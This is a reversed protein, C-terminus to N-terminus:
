YFLFRFFYGQYSSWNSRFHSPIQHYSFNFAIKFINVDAFTLPKIDGPKNGGGLRIEEEDQNSKPKETETQGFEEEDVFFSFEEEHKVGDVKVSIPGTGTAREEETNDDIEANFNAEKKGEIFNATISPEDAVEFEAFENDGILTPLDEGSSHYLLLLLIKLSNILYKKGMKM